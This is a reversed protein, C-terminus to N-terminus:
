CARIARRIRDAPLGCLVPERPTVWTARIARALGLSAMSTEPQRRRRRRRRCALGLLAFDLRAKTTQRLMRMLLHLAM